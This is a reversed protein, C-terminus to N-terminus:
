IEQPRQGPFSLALNLAYGEQPTDEKVKSWGQPFGLIGTPPFIMGVVYLVSKAKREM